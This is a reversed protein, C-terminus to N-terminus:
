LSIRRVEQVQAEPEKATIYRLVNDNWGYIFHVNRIFPPAPADRYPLLTVLYAKAGPNVRSTYEEWAELFGRGVWEESDTFAIFRDVEIKEKLLYEVPASLSTGGTARFASAAEMMTESQYFKEAFDLRVDSEFPLVVPLKECKKAVAATFIGVLDICQIVSYDGTLNSMMSGSVDSAIATKGPIEPINALSLEMAKELAHKIRHSGRFEQLMHYAVFFRFPFLKSKKVAEPNQIREVAKELNTPNDFVGNRAFNNLNRILNFYPAIHFLARWVEPTMKKVSGTVVEYPLKGELIYRVIEEEDEAKKLRHLLEFQEDGSHDGRMIYGIVAPNVKEHPRAIRIMDRVASPYKMAHYPSMNAIAEIIARKVSRGCGQRILRSRAIDILQMFDRPTLCVRHVIRHFLSPERKSVAVAGAIPMTRMFGHERAYVAAKALFETDECKQLVSVMDAVNEMANVYFLNATSGTTLVSVVQEEIPREFAPFGEKNVKEHTLERFQRFITKRKM